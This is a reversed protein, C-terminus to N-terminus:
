GHDKARTVERLVTQEFAIEGFMAAFREFRRGSFVEGVAGFAAGAVAVEAAEHVGEARLGIRLQVLDKGRLPLARLLLLNGTADLMQAM